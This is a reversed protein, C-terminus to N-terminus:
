LNYPAGANTIAASVPRAGLAQARILTFGPGCAVGYTLQCNAIVCMYIFSFLISPCIVQYLRTEARRTIGAM